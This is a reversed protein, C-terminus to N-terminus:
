FLRGAEAGDRIALLADGIRKCDGVAVYRINMEELVKGLDNVPKTGIAMVVTDAPLLLPLHLHNVEVGYKNISRIPSNPYLYVGNEVLENRYVGSIRPNTGKAIDEMDVISVHKGQKALIIAAEMGVFRGGIVVVRQGVKAKGMIVDNGQVVNVDGMDETIPLAKPIAGTALIVRDPKFQAIFDKDVETQLCVKVGSEKLEDIKQPILVRYDGKDEGQSAIIWQGGCEDSKECLTVDHGRKALTSAAEMGALGGGIVLVKQPNDSITLNYFEEERLNAPNVTCSRQPPFIEWRDNEMFCNVCGICKIIKRNDGKVAKNIWQPDAFLPRGLSVFDGINNAVVQEALQPEGLKGMAVIACKASIEELSEKVAKTYPLVYGAKYFYAPTITWKYENLGVSPHIADVYPAIYQAIQKGEDITLGRDGMLDDVGLRIVMPIDEGVRQRIAQLIEIVIRARNFTNGGYKDTRKNTYPSLFTSLFKGTCAHIELIDFGADVRLQATDAMSQVYQAIEDETMARIAKGNFSVRDSPGLGPNAYGGGCQVMVKAGYEKVRKVAKAAALMTREDYISPSANSSGKLPPETEISPFSIVGPAYEQKARYILSDVERDHLLGNHHSVDFSMASYIIRNPLELNGIYGKKLLNEIMNDRKESKEFLKKM